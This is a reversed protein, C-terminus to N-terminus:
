QAIVLSPKKTNPRMATRGLLAFVVVVGNFKSGYTPHPPQSM